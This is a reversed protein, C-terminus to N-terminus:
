KKRMDKSPDILFGELMNRGILMSYKMESRDAITVDKTITKGALKIKVRVVPRLTRGHASKVLKHEKIPGIHLEAALIADISGKTAGTDIRAFVERKRKDKGYVTVNELIGIIEKENKVAM